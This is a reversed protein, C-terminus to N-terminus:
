WAASAAAPIMGSGSSSTADLKWISRRRRPRRRTQEVSASGGVAIKAKLSLMAIPAICARARAAQPHRLVERDDAEVVELLRRDDRRRQRRHALRERLHAPHRDAQRRRRSSLWGSSASWTSSAVLKITRSDVAGGRVAQRARLLVSRAAVREEHNM